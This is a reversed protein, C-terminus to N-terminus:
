NWVVTNGIYNYVSFLFNDILNNINDRQKTLQINVNQKSKNIKDFKKVPPLLQIRITSCIIGKFTGILNLKYYDRSM